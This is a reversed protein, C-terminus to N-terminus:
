RCGDSTSSHWTVSSLTGSAKRDHIARRGRAAMATQLDSRAIGDRVIYGMQDPIDAQLNGTGEFRAAGSHVQPLRQRSLCCSYVAAYPVPPCIRVLAIEAM